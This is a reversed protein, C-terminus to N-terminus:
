MTTIKPAGVGYHLNPHTIWPLARLERLQFGKVRLTSLNDRPRFSMVFPAYRRAVKGPARALVDKPPPAQDAATLFDRCTM